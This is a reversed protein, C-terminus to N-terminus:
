KSDSNYIPPNLSCYANFIIKMEKNTLNCSAAANPLNKRSYFLDEMAQKTEPRM